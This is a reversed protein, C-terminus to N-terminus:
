RSGGTGEGRARLMRRRTRGADDAQPDHRKAYQGMDSNAASKTRVLAFTMTM